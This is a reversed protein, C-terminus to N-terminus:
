SRAIRAVDRLKQREGTRTERTVFIPREVSSDLFLDESRDFKVAHGILPYLILVAGPTERRRVQCRLSTLLM